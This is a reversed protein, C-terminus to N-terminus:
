PNTDCKNRLTATEAIPGAAGANTTRRIWVAKWAAPALDGISLAAGESAAAAFSVGSPATTENAVTQETGSIASTGLGIDLTTDASPTNAALWIKDALATLTAHTNLVYICRYETRGAAAEASSTADFLTAVNVETSSMAGGLSATPDSNGAGGSLRFKIDSAIIPM